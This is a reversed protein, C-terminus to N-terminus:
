PGTRTAAFAFFSLNGMLHAWSGFAAPASIMRLPNWSDAPYWLRATLIAPAQLQCAHYTDLLAKLLEM